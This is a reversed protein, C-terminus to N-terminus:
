RVVPGKASRNQMVKCDCSALELSAGYTLMHEGVVTVDAHQLVHHQGRGLDEVTANDTLIQRHHRSVCPADLSLENAGVRGAARVFAAHLAADRLVDVLPPAGDTHQFIMACADPTFPVKARARGYEPGAFLFESDPAPQFTTQRFWFIAPVYWGRRRRRPGIHACPAALWGITGELCADRCYVPDIRKLCTEPEVYKLM